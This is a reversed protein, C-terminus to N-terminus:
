CHINTKQTNLASLISTMRETELHLEMLLQYLIHIFIDLPLPEQRLIGYLRKLNTMPLAPNGKSLKHITNRIKEMKSQLKKKNKTYIEEKNTIYDITLSYINQLCQLQNQILTSQTNNQNYNEM